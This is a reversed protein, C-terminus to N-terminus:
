LGLKPENARRRKRADFLAFTSNDNVSNSGVSDSKGTFGKLDEMGGFLPNTHTVVSTSSEKGEGGTACFDAGLNGGDIPNEAHIVPDLIEM